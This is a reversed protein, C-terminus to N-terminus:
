PPNDNFSARLKRVEPRNWADGSLTFRLPASRITTDLDPLVRVTETWGDALPLIWADADPELELWDAGDYIEAKIDATGPAKFDFLATVKTPYPGPSAEINIARTQYVSEADSKGTLVQIDPYLIPTLNATGTIIADIKLTGTQRSPLLVFGGEYLNLVTNDPLAVRFVVDCQVSPREVAAMIALYDADTVTQDPLSVTRTIVSFTPGGIRFKMDDTQHITWSLNNSSSFLTGVTYPQSTVRQQTPGDVDGLRAIRVRWIADNCLLVFCFLQDKALVVPDFEFRTHTTISCQSPTRIAEAIVRPGPFGNVMERVQLTVDSTGKPGEFWVDIFSIQCTDNLAFSQALPDVPQFFTTVTTTNVTNVNFVRRRVLQSEQITITGRAVFSSAAYSPSPDAGGFFEVLKTGAPITDAPIYLTGNLVGDNDAQLTM